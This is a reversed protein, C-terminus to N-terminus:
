QSAKAQIGLLQAPPNDLYELLGLLVGPMDRVDRLVKNCRRCLAGRVYGTQHDHDVNLRYDRQGSCGHCAGYNYEILRQYDDATLGYTREIRGAHATNSRNRRLCDACKRAKASAYFREARNRDCQACPRTTGVSM